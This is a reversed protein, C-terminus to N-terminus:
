TLAGDVLTDPIGIGKEGQRGINFMAREFETTNM